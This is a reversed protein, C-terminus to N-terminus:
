DMTEWLAIRAVGEDSHDLMHTGLYLILTERKKQFDDRVHLNGCRM